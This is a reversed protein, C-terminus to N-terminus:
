KTTSLTAGTTFTLARGMVLVYIERGSEVTFAGGDSLGGVGLCPLQKLRKAIASAAALAAGATTFTLTEKPL